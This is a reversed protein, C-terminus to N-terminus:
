IPGMREADTSTPVPINPDSGGAVLRSLDLNGGNLLAAVDPPPPPPAQAPAPAVPMTIVPPPPPAQMAGSAAGTAQPASAPAAVAAPLMRPAALAERRRREGVEILKGGYVWALTGLVGAWMWFPSVPQWNTLGTATGWANALHASDEVTLELEPAHFRKAADRHFLEIRKMLDRDAGGPTPHRAEGGKGDGRAPSPTWNAGKGDGRSGKGKGTAPPAAGAAVGAGPPRLRPITRAPGPTPLSRAATGAPRSARATGAPKAPSATGSGTPGATGTDPSAPGPGAPTPEDTRGNENAM